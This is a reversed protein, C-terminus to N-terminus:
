QRVKKAQSSGSCPETWTATSAGAPLLGDDCSTWGDKLHSPRWEAGDEVTPRGFFWYVNYIGHFCAWVITAAGDPQHAQDVPDLWAASGLLNGGGEGAHGTRPKHSAGLGRRPASRPDARVRVPLPETSCRGVESIPAFLAIALPPGLLPTRDPLELGAIAYAAGTPLTIAVCTAIFSIGPPHGAPVAAPRRRRTASSTRPRRLQQRSAPDVRHVPDM